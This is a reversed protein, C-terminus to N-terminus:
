LGIGITTCNHYRQNYICFKLHSFKKERLSRAVSLAACLQLWQSRLVHQM